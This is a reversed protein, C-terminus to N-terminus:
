CNSKINEKSQKYDYIENWIEMEYYFTFSHVTGSFRRKLSSAREINPIIKKLKAM